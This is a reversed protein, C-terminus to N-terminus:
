GQEGVKLRRQVVRGVDAVGVRRAHGEVVLEVGVQGEKVPANLM